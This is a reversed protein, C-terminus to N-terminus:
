KDRLRKLMAALQAEARDLYELLTRPSICFGGFAMITDMEARDATAVTLEYRESYQAVLREIVDDATKGKGSYIVLIDDVSREKAQTKEGKGDFVIVVRQQMCDQYVTMRRCLEERAMAANREHISRLDEWAFIISHGDVFLAKLRPTEDAM